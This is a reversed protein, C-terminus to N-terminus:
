KKDGLKKWRDITAPLPSYHVIWLTGHSREEKEKLLIIIFIKYKKEM